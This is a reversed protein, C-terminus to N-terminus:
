WIWGMWKTKETKFEEMLAGDLYLQVFGNAITECLRSYERRAQHEQTYFAKATLKRDEM